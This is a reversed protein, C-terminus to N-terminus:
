LRAQRDLQRVIKRISQFAQNATTPLGSGGVAHTSRLGRTIAQRDLLIDVSNFLRRLSDSM